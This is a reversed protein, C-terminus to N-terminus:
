RDDRTPIGILKFDDLLNKWNSDRLSGAGYLKSQLSKTLIRLGSSTRGPTEIDIRNIDTLNIKIHRWLYFHNRIILYGDDILFYNMQFGAAMYILASLACPLLVALKWDHLDRFIVFLFISFGIFIFTNFSTYVNGAYRRRNVTALSKQTVAPAPDEEKMGAMRTIMIRMEAINIYMDVFIILKEGNNFDIVTAEMEQNFYTEKKSLFIETIDSWAYVSVSMIKRVTIFEDDLRILPNNQFFSYIFFLGMVPSLLLFFVHKTDLTVSHMKFFPLFILFAGGVSYILLRPLKYKSRIM